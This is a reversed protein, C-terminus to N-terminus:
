SISDLKQRLLEKENSGNTAFRIYPIGYKDLISNKMRDREAQRTGSKHFSYGDVEIALLPKKSIKNFILFDLHTSSNMAYQCEEDSLLHPNRIIMNLPQHCIVDLDNRESESLVETILAYMLNESDYASVRKHKKLYDQRAQTYQSYLYDFVSYLASDTVTCNQYEIYDVLDRINQGDTQENGSTILILRKKARSIAVNLLYPDDTFDSIKDDVTTMIITDKERGQFKHVTATTIGNDPLQRKIENVQNNYPAIIGISGPVSEIKPLVETTLIDIQRQNMHERSHNGISTKIVSLVNSEGCDKTMIVLNGNYFKQNCFNIIKPHCRYHERLLTRPANPIVKCLSSLFSSEAFNYDQPLEFSKFIADAIKRDEDTIVNPLQKSDGVIVAHKANSLALAGTPIDVQSAEDMIAYDFKARSYLSSRSSFTTSLIVPYEAQFEYPKKWFDDGIFIPRSENKSYKIYLRHKLYQMSKTQMDNLLQHANINKLSNEISSIRRQLEEEKARYFLAHLASIIHEPKNKYFDWKCMGFRFRSRLKFILPIKKDNDAYRQCIEWLKLIDSSKVTRRMMIMSRDPLDTETIYQEFHYQETIIQNLEQRAEALNSQMEFVNQLQESLRGIEEIFEPQEAERFFWGSFDPYSDTQSTLFKTKNSSRGLSAIIFELGYESFKEYINQIASNNNSVVQVTKGSIIINAIINLITQTKGTGPPGEIVSLKNELANKVAKFQSANCGFPFILHTPKALAATYLTPNLYYALVSTEDIFDIGAYQIPLLKEGTEAKLKCLEASRKLYDLVNKATEDDLVSKEIQLDDESYNRASGNEFCIHWYRQNIDTFVYIARIGWLSIGNHSIHYNLPDLVVPDKLWHINESNYSYTKQNKFTVEYKQTIANYKLETIDETIIRGNAVIMHKSSNVRKVAQM